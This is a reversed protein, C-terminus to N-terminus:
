RFTQVIHEFKLNERTMSYVKSMLSEVCRERIWDCLEGITHQLLNQTEKLLILLSYTVFVLRWHRNSAMIDRVMYEGLGLSQKSDRYFEEIRHRIGYTLIMSQTDMEMIDSVLFHMEDPDKQFMKVKMLLNISGLGGM